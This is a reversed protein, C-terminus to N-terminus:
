QDAGCANCKRQESQQALLIEEADGLVNAALQYGSHFGPISPCMRCM